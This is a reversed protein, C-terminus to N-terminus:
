ICVEVGTGRKGRGTLNLCLSMAVTGQRRRVSREDHLEQLVTPYNQELQEIHEGKRGRAPGRQLLSQFLWVELDRQRVIFGLVGHEVRRTARFIWIGFELTIICCHPILPDITGGGGISGAPKCTRFSLSKVDISVVFAKIGIPGRTFYAFCTRGAMRNLLPCCEHQRETTGYYWKVTSSFFMVASPTNIDSPFTNLSM